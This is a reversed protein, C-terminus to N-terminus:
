SFHYQLDQFGSGKLVVMRMVEIFCTVPNLYAIVKAWAPMDANFKFHRRICNRWQNQGSGDSHRNKKALDIEFIQGDPTM